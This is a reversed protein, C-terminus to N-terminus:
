EEVEEIAFDPHNLNFTFLEKQETYTFFEQFHTLDIENCRIKDFKFSRPYPIYTDFPFESITYTSGITKYDVKGGYISPILIDNYSIKSLLVNTSSNYVEIYEFISYRILEITDGCAIEVSESYPVINKCWDEDSTIKYCYAQVKIPYALNNKMLVIKSYYEPTDPPDIPVCSVFLFITIIYFFYLIVKM